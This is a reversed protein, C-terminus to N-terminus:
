AGLRLREGDWRARLALAAAIGGLSLAAGLGFAGEGIWPYLPAAAFTAAAMAVGGAGPGVLGQASARLEPPTAAQVFAIAGLHAPAFTLAHTLQLAWLAEPSPGLAMATWRAVGVAGSLAFCRWPGLKASIWGGVSLMLAVEAAVGAAWLAGVAGDGLGQARWHISGYAYLPGHAAQLLASAAAALMFARNRLLRPADGLRPRAVAGGRAGGPHRLALWALALLSAVIWWLAAESGLWAVALGALLNAFLFAASGFARVHAYAFGFRDSAAASLADSIPVSGSIAVATLLTLGFLAARTEVLAHAAFAAAGLLALLALASRRAGLVDALWPAGVGAAIRAAIAAGLYLGIEAESLGWDGLWVPWFPLHAGIAAFLAAFVGATMLGAPATLTAIAGARPAPPDPALSPM